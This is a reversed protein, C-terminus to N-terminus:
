KMKVYSGPADEIVPLNGDEPRVAKVMKGSQKQCWKHWDLWWSGKHEKANKFWEEPNKPNDARSWYCYKNKSPHNVVGVVHGSAALVFTVDGSFISTAAYTSQWPAIHDERTSLFYCPVDITSLDIKVGSLTLANKKILKNEYYFNRLYFSHMKAPLRTSDSNWFLLDFPIPDRGLLYNSVFCSWIMDNARLLNFARDMDEGDFFGEDQMRKEVHTLQEEDIFVSLEGASAFDVLTTFFTASKIRYDKKVKMYALATSLITGGICYGAANIQKAGTAKTIADVAAVPGDLMYDEFDKSALKKGPNVWSIVFLNYGQDVIWKVFSNEEKMDLIYYKKICPPVILLPIEFNNKQTPNYHILQMLDNQYIIKGKTTAINVGIEFANEDNTKIDIFRKSRDIDKLMKELGKVLNEGKSEITQKLVEPNTFLFNTPSFADIFQKTYFNAKLATKPDIDSVGAVMQQLWNSNMLYSQKLFDFFVNKQWAEDKFRNDKNHPQYLPESVEGMFRSLSNNVLELCKNNYNIQHELMKEPSSWIKGMVETLASSMNLPDIVSQHIQNSQKELIKAVVQKYQESIRALNISFEEQFNPAPNM